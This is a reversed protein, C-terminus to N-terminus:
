WLHYGSIARFILYTVIFCSTLTYFSIYDRIPNFYPTPDPYSWGVGGVEPKSKLAWYKAAGKWECISRGPAPALLEWTVDQPPIYFAPPHATELVRYTSSSSAISTHNFYVEVKRDDSVLKPPRPYDWVSEQDPRPEIAFDPKKQGRYQWM